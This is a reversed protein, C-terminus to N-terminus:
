SLPMARSSQGRHIRNSASGSQATRGAAAASSVYAGKSPAM